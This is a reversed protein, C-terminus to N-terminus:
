GTNIHSDGSPNAGLLTSRARAMLRNGHSSLYFTVAVEWEEIMMYDKDLKPFFVNDAMFLADWDVKRYDYKAEYKGDSLVHIKCRTFLPKGNEDLHAQLTRMLFDFDSPTRLDKEKMKGNEEIFYRSITVSHEEDLFYDIGIEQWGVGAAGITEQLINEIISFQTVEGM